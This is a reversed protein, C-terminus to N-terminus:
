PCVNNGDEVYVLCEIYKYGCSTVNAYFNILGEGNADSIILNNGGLDTNDTINCGDACSIIWDGDSYTCSDEPITTTTTTTSSTTGETIYSYIESLNTNGHSDNALVRWSIISGGSENVYKTVNSWCLTDNECDEGMNFAVFTDNTFYQEPTYDCGCSANCTGIGCTYSTTGTCSGTSVTLNINDLAYDGAWGGGCTYKIRLNGYGRLETLNRSIQFWDTGQNGTETWLTIWDGTTNEQMEATGINAGYMSNYWSFNELSYDDWNIPDSLWVTATEGATYCAGSSTEVYIYENDDVGADDTDCTGDGGCPGTASSGTGDTDWTWDDTDGFPNGNNYADTWNGLDATFRDFYLTETGGGTWTCGCATCSDNGTYNGCGLVTGTCSESINSGNHFSFIYGGGTLNINDTWKLRHEINTGAETGNTSNDSYSPAYLHDYNDLYTINVHPLWNITDNERAWSDYETNGSQTGPSMIMYSFIGDNDDVANQILKTINWCRKYGQPDAAAFVQSSPNDTLENSDYAPPDNWTTVMEEWTLNTVNYVYGTVSVAAYDRADFLCAQADLVEVISLNSVNGKVLIRAEDQNSNEKSIRLGEIGPTNGYNVSPNNERLYADAIILSRAETPTTTILDAYVMNVGMLGLIMITLMKYKM